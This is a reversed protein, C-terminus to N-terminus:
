KKTAKGEMVTSWKTGDESMDFTFTYSTPSTVKITFKGKMTMGAMKEDNTWTWTDGDVSGKSDTFEGYSNFERYTYNKDDASYSMVSLGVGSGMTGKYDSHCVLFFGGEMWECKESENMSGGPEGMAPKMTGDLTWTGVFVDLKKFEPGPKPPAMQAAACTASIIAVAFILAAKKM